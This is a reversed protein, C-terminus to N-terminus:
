IEEATIITYNDEKEVGTILFQSSKRLLVERENKNSNVGFKSIEEILKGHKVYIEFIVTGFQRATSRKFHM